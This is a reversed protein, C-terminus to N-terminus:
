GAESTAEGELHEAILDDLTIHRLRRAATLGSPDSLADGVVYGAATLKALNAKLAPLSWVRERRGPDAELGALLLIQDRPTFHM